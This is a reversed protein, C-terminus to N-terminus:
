RPSRSVATNPFLSQIKERDTVPQTPAGLEIKIQKARLAKPLKPRYAARAKQLASIEASM